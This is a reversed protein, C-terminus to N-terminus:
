LSGHKRSGPRLLLSWLPMLPFNVLMRSRSSVIWFARKMRYKPLSEKKEILRDAIGRAKELVPRDIKRGNLEGDAEYADMMESLVKGVVLDPEQEWFARMKKAKSTGYTQYKPGHIKIGHRKFFEGYSADSFDLVYGSGMELLKEMYRKEIDTLSSM